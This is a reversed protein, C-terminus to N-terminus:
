SSSQTALRFNPPFGPQAENKSANAKQYPLAYNCTQPPCFSFVLCNLGWTRPSFKTLSTWGPGHQLQASSAHLLRKQPVEIGARVNSPRSPFYCTRTRVRKEVPRKASPDCPFAIELRCFFLRATEYLVPSTSSIDRPPFYFFGTSSKGPAAIPFFFALEM